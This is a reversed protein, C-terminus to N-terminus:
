MQWTLTISSVPPVKLKGRWAISTRGAAAAGVGGLGVGGVWAGDIYSSFQLDRGETPIVFPLAADGNSM